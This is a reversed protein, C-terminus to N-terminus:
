KRGKRKEKYEARSKRSKAYGNKEGTKLRAEDGEKRKRVCEREEEEENLEETGREGRRGQMTAGRRRGEVYGCWWWGEKRSREKEEQV